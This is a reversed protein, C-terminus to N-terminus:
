HSISITLEVKKGLPPTTSVAVAVGLVSVGLFKSVIFIVFCETHVVFASYIVNLLWPCYIVTNAASSTRSWAGHEPCCHLHVNQSPIVLVWARKNTLNLWGEVNLIGILVWIYFTVAKSLEWIEPKDYQTVYQAALESTECEKKKRNGAITATAQPFVKDFSASNFLRSSGQSGNRLHVQDTQPAKLRISSSWIKRRCDAGWTKFYRNHHELM